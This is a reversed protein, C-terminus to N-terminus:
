ARGAQDIEAGRDRHQRHDPPVARGSAGDASACHSQRDRDHDATGNAWHEECGSQAMSRCRGRRQQEIELQHEGRQERKEHEALVDALADHGACREDDGCAGCEAPGALRVEAPARQQDGARTQTPSDVVAHGGVEVLERRGM